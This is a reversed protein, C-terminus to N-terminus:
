LHTMCMVSRLCTHFHYAVKVFGYWIQRSSKWSSHKNQCKVYPCTPRQCLKPCLCWFAISDTDDCIATTQVIVEIASNRMCTYIFCGFRQYLVYELQCYFPQDSLQLQLTSQRRQGLYMKMRPKVDPKLANIKPLVFICLAFLKKQSKWLDDM